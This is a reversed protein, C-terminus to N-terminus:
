RTAAHFVAQYPIFSIWHARHMREYVRLCRGPNEPCTHWTCVTSLSPGKEVAPLVRFLNPDPITLRLPPPKTSLEARGPIKTAFFVVSGVRPTVWGASGCALASVGAHLRRQDFIGTMPPRASDDLRLLTRRAGRATRLLICSM